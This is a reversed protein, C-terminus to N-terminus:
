GPIKGTRNIDFGASPLHKRDSSSQSAAISSLALFKIKVVAKGPHIKNAPPLSLSEMSGFINSLVEAISIRFNLHPIKITYSWISHFVQQRRHNYLHTHISNPTDTCPIFQIEIYYKM